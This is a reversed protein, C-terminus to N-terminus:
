EERRRGDLRVWGDSKGGARMDFGQHYADAVERAQADLIGSLMLTGGPITLRSLVPALEMLTGALINAIVLSAPEAVPARGTATAAEVVSVRDSLGNRRANEATARLAQPDIDLAIVRRAGLAAAAVALIGSGCGYDIVDLGAPPTAALTRSM